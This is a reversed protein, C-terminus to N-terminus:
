IKRGIILIFNIERNKNNFELCVKTFGLVDFSDDTIKMEEADDVNDITLMGQAVYHYKGPDNVILCEEILFFFSFKLISNQNNQYIKSHIEPFANSCM